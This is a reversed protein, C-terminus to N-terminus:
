HVVTFCVSRLSLKGQTLDTLRVLNAGVDTPQKPLAEPSSSSPGSCCPVSPTSKHLPLRIARYLYMYKPERQFLLSAESVHSSAVCTYAYM